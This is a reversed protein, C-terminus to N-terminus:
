KCYISVDIPTWMRFTAGEIIFSGLTQESTFTQLKKNRCAKDLDIPDSWEVLGLAIGSYWTDITAAEQYSDSESFQITCCGAGFGVALILSGCRLLRM